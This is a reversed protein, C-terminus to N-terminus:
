HFLNAGRIEISLAVNAEIKKVQVTEALGRIPSTQVKAPLEAAKDAHSGGGKKSLSSIDHGSPGKTRCRGCVSAHIQEPVQNGDYRTEIRSLPHPSQPGPNSSRSVSISISWSRPSGPPLRWWAM